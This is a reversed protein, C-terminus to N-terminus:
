SDMKSKIWKNILILNNNIKSSSNDTWNTSKM